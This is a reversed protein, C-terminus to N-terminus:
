PYVIVPNGGEACYKGFEHVGEFFFDSRFHSMGDERCEAEFERDAIDKDSPKLILERILYYIADHKLAARIADATPDTPGSPGDSSYYKKLVGQGDKTISILDCDIDEDPRIDTEFHYDEAVIFCKFGKRWCKIHTDQM